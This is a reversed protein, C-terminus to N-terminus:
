RKILPVGKIATKGSVGPASILTVPGTRKKGHAARVRDDISKFGTIVADPQAPINVLSLEMIETELFRLGGTKLTEIADNLVRFGISVATILGYKLSHVARDVQDKVLGPESIKPIYGVFPIGKRTPAGLEARGVVTDSHQWQLPISAAFKAGMPEVIDQMRDPSPTTAIGRIVHFGDSDEVGKVELVGFAKNMNSSRQRAPQNGMTMPDTADEDSEDVSDVEADVYWKHVGDMGDFKIGLAETAIQRVEGEKNKTMADHEKGAKVKVRNGIKFKTAM